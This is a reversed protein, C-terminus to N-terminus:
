TTKAQISQDHLLNAVRNMYDNIVALQEADYRAELQRMESVFAALGGYLPALNDPITEVIVKRRDATDNGRRLFSRKELRGIVATISGTTLGLMEALEGATKPGEVLFLLCRYDTAKLELRDAMSRHFLIADTNVIHSLIHAPVDSFPNALNESM